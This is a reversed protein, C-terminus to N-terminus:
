IENQRHFCVSYINAFDLFHNIQMLSGHKEINGEYYKLNGGGLFHFFYNDKFYFDYGVYGKNM